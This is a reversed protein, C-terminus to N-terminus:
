RRIPSDTAADPQGELPQDPARDADFGCIDAYLATLRTSARDWSYTQEVLARNRRAMAEVTDPDTILRELATELATADGADILRGNEEDVVDPISGVRTSVLANGGAMAELLAIPLGEAYTPLAYITSQSLLARKDAESIYGLYSVRDYDDALESAYHSLPGTGAITVDFELGADYLNAVAETLERIGKREIHNSVFALHPPSADFAPDYAGPDIANPLVVLKQADVRSALAGEWYESLVVVRECAAFVARQLLAVPPSASAVFADFSSGHIHCVVPRQWVVSAVFVYFASLYFSNYHSTHVHVVDARDHFLFGLATAFAALISRLMGADAPTAVDYTRTAIEAPLIREHEAIYRAVGGTDRGAPGVICVSIATMNSEPKM